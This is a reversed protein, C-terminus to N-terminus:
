IVLVKIFWSNHKKKKENLELIDIMLKKQKADAVYSMYLDALIISADKSLDELSNLRFSYFRNQNKTMHEIVNKPIKDLDERAIIKLAALVEVYAKRIEEESAIYM